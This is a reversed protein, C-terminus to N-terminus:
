FVWSQNTKNSCSSCTYPITFHDTDLMFGCDSPPYGSLYEIYINDIQIIDSCGRYVIHHHKEQRMWGCQSVVGDIKTESILPLDKLTTLNRYVTSLNVTPYSQRVREEIQSFTM